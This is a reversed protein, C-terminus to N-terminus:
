HKEKEKRLVPIVAKIIIGCRPCDRTSVINEATFQGIVEKERHTSAIMKVGDRPCYM